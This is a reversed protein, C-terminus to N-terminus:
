ENLSQEYKRAFYKKIVELPRRGFSLYVTHFLKEDYRKGFKHQTEEKLKMICDAGVKYSIAQGPWNTVRNIEREAIENQGAINEKWYNMAKERSWGYYQIGTEIVLRASRVLDWEWKGLYSYTDTYMGLKKGEYEIYCAWGEFNGSYFFLPQLSDTVHINNFCSQFHHGPIAEHMYLWEAARRNFKNGFFNFMFANVHHENDNENSYMGPPTQANAHPWELAVVPPINLPAMFTDLNARITSDTRAFLKELQKKDKIYFSPDNLQKYFATSDPFNLSLQIKKIEQKVRKVENLGFQMIEEGSLSLSNYKQLFYNYWLAHNKLKYIGNEPIQRGGKQWQMELAIRMLNFNIEYEIHAVEIQEDLTLTTKKFLELSDRKEKFFQQEELLKDAKAVSKFYGHYDYNLVPLDLASYGRAFSNVFSRFSVGVPVGSFFLCWAFCLCTTNYVLRKM